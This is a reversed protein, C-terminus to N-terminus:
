NLSTGLAPACLGSLHSAPPESSLVSRAITLLTLIICHGYSVMSSKPILFYNNLFINSYTM